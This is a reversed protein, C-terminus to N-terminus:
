PIFLEDKEERPGQVKQKQQLLRHHAEEKVKGVQGPQTRHHMLFKMQFYNTDTPPTFSLSTRYFDFLESPLLFWSYKVTNIKKKETARFCQSNPDGWLLSGNGSTGNPIITAYVKVSKYSM